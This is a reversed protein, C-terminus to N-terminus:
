QPGRRTDHDRVQEAQMAGTRDMYVRVNVDVNQRGQQIAYARRVSGELDPGSSSLGSGFMDGGTGHKINYASFEGSSVPAGEATLLGQEKASLLVRAAKREANFGTTVGSRALVDGFAGLNQGEFLAGGAEGRKALVEDPLLTDAIGTSIGFKEDLWTGAAIGGLLAAALPVAKGLHVVMGATGASGAAANTAIAATLAQMQAFQSVLGALKITAWTAAFWEANDVMFELVGAMKDLMNAFQRIRAPTFAKSIAEKMDNFAKTIKFASTQRRRAVDEAITGGKLSADTLELVADRQKTLTQIANLAEGRKGFAKFFDAQKSKTILGDVVFGKREIDDLIDFLPRYNGASDRVDIGIKGLELERTQFTRLLADLQTGAISASGSATRLIQISSVLSAIAKVGGGSFRAFGASSQQLVENVESLPVSTKKGALVIADFAARMDDANTIGFSKDMSLVLGSLDSMESNTALAADGLLELKGAALGSTGLLNVLGLQAQAVSGRAIGNAKGLSIMRHRLEGVQQGTLDGQIGLDALSQEFDLVTKGIAGLGAVGVGIGLPSMASRLLGRVKRGIGTFTRSFMSKTQRLDQRLKRNDAGIAARATPTAM